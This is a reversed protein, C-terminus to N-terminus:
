NSAEYTKSATLMGQLFIPPSTQAFDEIMWDEWYYVERVLDQVPVSETLRLHMAENDPKTRKKNGSLMRRATLLAIILAKTSVPSGEQNGEIRQAQEFSLEGFFYRIDLDLKQNIRLLLDTSISQKGNETKSWNGSTMGIENAFGRQSFGLQERAYRVRDSITQRGTQKDM